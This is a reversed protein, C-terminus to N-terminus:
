FGVAKLKGQLKEADKLYSHDPNTLIKNFLLDTSSKTKPLQAILSRLLEYEYSDKQFDDGDELLGTYIEAAAAFKSSYFLSEGKLQRADVYFQHKDDMADVLSIVEVYEKASFKELLLKWDADTEESGNGRINAAYDGAQGAMAIGRFDPLPIPEINLKEKEEENPTKVIEEKPDPIIPAENKIESEEKPPDPTEVIEPTEINKNRLIFYGAMLLLAISAAIVLPRFYRKRPELVVVKTSAELIAKRDSEEQDLAAIENKLIDFALGELAANESRQLAVEIALDEDNAIEIEFDVRESSEMEEKLYREIKDFNKM